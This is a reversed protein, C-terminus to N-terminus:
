KRTAETGRLARKYNRRRLLSFGALGTAFLALSTPEPVPSASAPLELYDQAFDSVPGENFSMDIDHLLTFLEQPTFPSGGGGIAVEGYPLVDRITSGDLSALGGLGPDNELNVLELDGVVRLCALEVGRPVRCVFPVLVHHEDGGSAPQNVM